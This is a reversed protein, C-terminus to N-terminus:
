SARVVLKILTRNCIVHGVETDGPIEQIVGDGWGVVDWGGRVGPLGEQIM